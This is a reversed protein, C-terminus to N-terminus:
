EWDPSVHGGFSSKLRAEKEAVDEIKIGARIWSNRNRDNLKIELMVREMARQSTPM